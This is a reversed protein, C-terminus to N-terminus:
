PNVGEIITLGAITCFQKVIAHLHTGEREAIEFGAITQYDTIELQPALVEVIWRRCTRRYIQLVIYLGTRHELYDNFEIQLRLMDWEYDPILREDIPLEPLELRKFIRQMGVALGADLVNIYAHKVRLRYLREPEDDFRTIDREWALLDVIELPANLVDHKVNLIKAFGEASTIWWREAAAKLAQARTGNMWFSINGTIM